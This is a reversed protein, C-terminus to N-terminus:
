QSVRPHCELHARGATAGGGGSAGVDPQAHSSVRGEAARLHRLVERGGEAQLQAPGVAVGFVLRHLRGVPVFDERLLLNAQLGEGRGDIAHELLQAHDGFVGLLHGLVDLPQARLTRIPLLHAAWRVRRKRAM